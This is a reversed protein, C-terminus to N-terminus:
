DRAPKFGLIDVRKLVLLTLLAADILLTLLDFIGFQDTFTLLINVLLVAIALLYLWRNQKGLGWGAVLMAAANGFMLVAVVLLTINPPAGGRSLRALSAVGFVLWIAANLYFLWQAYKVAQPRTPADPNTM